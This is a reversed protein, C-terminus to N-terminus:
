LRKKNKIIVASLQCTYSLDVYMSKLIYGSYKFYITQNIFSLLDDTMEMVRRELMDDLVQAFRQKNM